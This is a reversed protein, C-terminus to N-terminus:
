FAADQSLRNEPEVTANFVFITIVCMETLKTLVMHLCIGHMPDWHLPM